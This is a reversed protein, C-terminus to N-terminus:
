AVRLFYYLLGVGVIVGVVIHWTTPPGFLVRFVRQLWRRTENDLLPDTM